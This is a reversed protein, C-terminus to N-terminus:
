YKFKNQVLPTISSVQSLLTDIANNNTYWISNSGLIQANIRALQTRDTIISEGSETNAYIDKLDTLAEGVMQIVGKLQNLFPVYPNGEGMRPPKLWSMVDRAGLLLNFKTLNNITLNSADTKYQIYLNKWKNASEPNLKSYEEFFQDIRDFSLNEVRLPLSMIVNNILMASAADHSDKDQSDKGSDSRYSIYQNAHDKQKKGRTDTAIGPMVSCAKGNPDTFSAGIEQIQKLYFSLAKKTYEAPANELLHKARIYLVQIVTCHNVGFATCEQIIKNGSNDYSVIQAVPASQLWANLATASKIDKAKLPINGVNSVPNKIDFVKTSFGDVPMEDSIDNPNDPTSKPKRDLGSDPKITNLQDILKGVMVELVKGQADGSQTMANSKQQLYSIYKTLLELNVYCDANKWKRNSDRNTKFSVPAYKNIDAESVDTPSSYAIRTGDYYIKNTFLFKLLADINYINEVKLEAGTESSIQPQGSLEKSLNSVLKKAMSKPDAATQATKNLSNILSLLIKKDYLFSM